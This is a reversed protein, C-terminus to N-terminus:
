YKKIKNIDISNIFKHYKRILSTQSCNNNEKLYKAYNLYKLHSQQNKAKLYLSSISLNISIILENYEDYDDKEFVVQFIEIIKKFLVIKEEQSYKNKYIEEIFATIFLDFNKNLM